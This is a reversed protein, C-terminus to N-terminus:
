KTGLAGMQSQLMTLTAELRAFQATLRDKEAALRTTEESIRNNLSDIDDQVNKNDIDVSGTTDKTAANLADNLAGAFGQKVDITATFPSVGSDQSLDVTLQLGNEAYLPSGNTSDFASNGTITNGSITMDRWASDSEDSAKIKASTIVGGSVTVKVNYEGATTYNDSASYFGITNRNSTGTKTAGILALVGLYNDSVATNLTNSDLSLQGNSDISLGLQSPSIYKDVSSLFGKAKNVLTTYLQDNVTTVMYDGMLVGAVKTQTNYATQDKIFSAVTNYATVMANIKTILADSNRTLTIQEGSSSSDSVGHLYFTVGDVVDTVTNSSRSIYADAGKTAETVALTKDSLNSANMLIGSVDGLTNKFEFTLTGSTDLTKDKVTIDGPQVSPLADLADQIEQLTSDAGLEVTTYGGYSLTFTGTVPSSHVIQQVESVAPNSPYGDVKIKSDQAVQSRTFDAATFGALSATNAAGDSLVAMAPLDLTADSGHANYNLSVSLQSPGATKDTVTIKGNEITATVNGGFASEIESLLQSITTGSDLNLTALSIAAGNHDHGTIDITEGGSLSGGFQDLAKILTSTGANTDDATLSDSGQWMEIGGGPVSETLTPLDLAGSLNTDNYALSVSLKSAGSIKDTVIIKGNEFTAKVNGDYAEEIADLVHSIKTNSTVNLTVPTISNGNHDEGSVVLTEDGSLTGSFQDLKNLLTSTDADDGNVTLLGDTQWVETSSPNVHISYDTGADKGSLVLHYQNNYSLLSATVGPNNSDNNILGVLDDLTTKDTTTVRTEKGDYSYIFTGTGVYDEKYKFGTNQVWRDATALQKVFVTHNGESASSTADATVITDDSTSISFLKLDNANSLSNVATQLAQLDSKFTVLSGQKSQLNQVRAQYMNKINSDANILQTIITSTDLGTSLGPFNITGM